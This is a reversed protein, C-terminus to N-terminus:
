PVAAAPAPARRFPQRKWYSLSRWLWELPGYRFSRLWLPSVILQLVWVSGVVIMQEARGLTEFRGFGHGYFFLTCIVTQMIYNTFAMQGAAAFPRLLASRPAVRCALMVLGIYGLCLAVSGWWNFQQGQFFGISVDWDRAECFEIGWLILPIGIVFGLVVLALYFATSRAASFVGLKFLAMGLLMLGGARWLTFFLFGMTQFGISAPIRHDLQGAWSGQYIATESEIQEPPPAWSQDRFQAVAEEPWHPMSLGALLSMGTGIALMVLGLVILAVPPLKRFLYMLLGCMGYAVLIDGYWLLYAHMLGFIILWMMRRYHVGASRGSRAEARSTMLVIGAGFLMSFISMFKMDGFVHTAWWAWYDVPALEGHATPNFYAAGIMSFAKINLALIGLVAVGRLVDISAIREAQAVPAAPTVLPPPPPPADIPPTSEVPPTAPEFTSESGTEV